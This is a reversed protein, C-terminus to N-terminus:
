WDPCMDQLAGSILPLEYGSSVPCVSHSHGQPVPLAQAQNSRPSTQLADHQRRLTLTVQAWILASLAHCRETAGMSGQLADSLALQLASAAGEAESSGPGAHARAELM